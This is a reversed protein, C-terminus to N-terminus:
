VINEKIMEKKLPLFPTSPKPALSDEIDDNYNINDKDIADEVVKSIKPKISDRIIRNIKQNLLDNGKLFDDM